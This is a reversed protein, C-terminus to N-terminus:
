EVKMSDFERLWGEFYTCEEPNVPGKDKCFDFVPCKGCPAQSWGLAVREQRITRYVSGVYSSSSRRQSRPETEGETEDPSPIATSKRRRRGSSSLGEETDEDTSETKKKRKMPKKATFTEAESSSPEDMNSSHKRKKAPSANNPIPGEDESEAMADESGVVSSDWM